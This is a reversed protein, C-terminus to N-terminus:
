AIGLAFILSWQRAVHANRYSPLDYGAYRAGVRVIRVPRLILPRMTIDSLLALGALWSGLLVLGEAGARGAAVLCFAVFPRQLVQHIAGNGRNISPCSFQHSPGMLLLKRYIQITTESTCEFTSNPYITQTVLAATSLLKVLTVNYCMSEIMM